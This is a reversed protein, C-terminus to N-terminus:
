EKNKRKNILLLNNSLEIFKKNVRLKQPDTSKTIKYGTYFWNPFNFRIVQAIEKFSLNLSDNLASPYQESLTMESVSSNDPLLLEFESIKQLFEPIEIEFGNRENLNTWDGVACSKKRLNKWDDNVFSAVGLCCYGYHGNDDMSESRLMDKCQKYNGSELRKVWEIIENKNNEFDKELRNVNEIYNVVHQEFVMM